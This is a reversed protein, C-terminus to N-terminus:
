QDFFYHRLCKTVYVFAHKLFASEEEATLIPELPAGILKLTKSISDMNVVDTYNQLTLISTIEGFFASRIDCTFDCDCM